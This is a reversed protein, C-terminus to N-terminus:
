FMSYSCSEPSGIIFDICLFQSACIMALWKWLESLFVVYWWNDNVGLTYVSSQFRLAIGHWTPNYCNSLGSQSFLIRLWCRSFSCIDASHSLVSWSDFNETVFPWISEFTVYSIENLRNFSNWFYSDIITM